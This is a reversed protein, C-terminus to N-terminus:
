VGHPTKEGLLLPLPVPFHPLDVTNQRDHHAPIIRRYAMSGVKLWKTQQVNLNEIKKGEHYKKSLETISLDAYISLCTLLNDDRTQKVLLFAHEYRTEPDSYNIQSDLKLIICM